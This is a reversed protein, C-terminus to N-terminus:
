WAAKGESAGSSPATLRGLGKEACLKRDKEGRDIDPLADHYKEVLVFVGRFRPREGWGGM